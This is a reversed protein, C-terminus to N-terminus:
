RWYPVGLRAANQRYLLWDSLNTNGDMNLDAPLYTNNTGNYTRWVVDDLLQIAGDANADAAWMGFTNNALPAQTQAMARAADPIFNYLAVAPLSIPTASIIPLHNRHRVAVYYNGAPIHQMKVLTSFPADADSVYGDSLLLAAKQAVLISPNAASRLEILVWDTTLSPLAAAVSDKGLYYFPAVRYPQQLPLLGATRLDVSMNNTAVQYVGQLLVRVRVSVECNPLVSLAQSQSCGLPSNYSVTYSGTASNAVDVRGTQSDLSLGAPTATFVGNPNGSLTPTPLDNNPCFVTHHYIFAANCTNLQSIGCIQLNDLAAHWDWGGGDAYTFRLQLQANRYPTLDFRATPLPTCNWWGCNSNQWFSLSVWASGNWVETRLSGSITHFNYQYELTLQSYSLVDIAPTVLQVIEGGNTDLADDDFWAMCSGDLSQGADNWGIQWRAATNTSLATNQWGAPLYCGEFNESWVVSCSCVSPPSVYSRVSGCSAYVADTLMLQVTDATNPLNPITVTQPSVGYSQPYGVGGVWVVFGSSSNNLTNFGISLQLSHTANSAQCNIPTASIIALDATTFTTTTANGSSGDTCDAFVSAQYGTCPLLGSILNNQNPLALSNYVLANSAVNRLQLRYPYNTSIPNYYVNVSNASVKTAGVSIVRSPNYRVITDKGMGGGVCAARLSFEYPTCAPLGAVTYSGGTPVTASGIWATNGQPRWRVYTPLGADAWTLQVGGVVMAPNQVLLRLTDITIQQPLHTVAGNSCWNYVKARYGECATLGGFLVTTDATILSDVLTNPLRYLAVAFQQSDDAPSWTIRSSSALRNYLFLPSVAHCATCQSFCTKQAVYNTIAAVSTASFASATGTISPQMIYNSNAADHSAGVNHGLEHAALMRGRLFVASTQQLVGYKLETCAGGTTALGVIQGAFDRGSWLQSAEYPQEFATNAGNAWDRFSQILVYPDTNATWPDCTSCESVFVATLALQIGVAAYVSQMNNTVALMYKAIRDTSGLQQWLAYDAALALHATETCNPPPQAALAPADPLDNAPMDAAQQVLSAGCHQETGQQVAQAPYLVLVNPNASPYFHYLPQLCWWVGQADTFTAYLVSDDAILQVATGYSSRCAYPQPAAIRRTRSGAVSTTHLTLYHDSSATRSHRATAIHLSLQKNLWLVVTDTHATQLATQLSDLPLQLLQYSDLHAAIHRAITARIPYPQAKLQPQQITQAQMCVTFLLSVILSFATQM